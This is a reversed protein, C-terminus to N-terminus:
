RRCLPCNGMWGEACEEHGLFNDCYVCRIHDGITPEMCFLCEKGSEVSKFLYMKAGYKQARYRQLPNFYDEEIRREYQSCAHLFKGYFDFPFERLAHSIQPFMIEYYKTIYVQVDRKRNLQILSAIIDCYYSVHQEYEFLSVQIRLLHESMRKLAYYKMAYLDMEYRSSIPRLDDLLKAYYTYVSDPIRSRDKIKTEYISVIKRLSVLHIHSKHFLVGEYKGIRALLSDSVRSVLDQINYEKRSDLLQVTKCYLNQAPSFSKSEVMREVWGTKLVVASLKQFSTAYKDEPYAQIESISPNRKLFLRFTVYAKFIPCQDLAGFDVDELYRETASPERYLANGTYMYLCVKAIRKEESSGYCLIHIANEFNKAVIEDIIPNM